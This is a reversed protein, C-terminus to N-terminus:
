KAMISYRTSQTVSDAGQIATVRLEWEGLSAPPNLHVPITGTGDPPPLDVLKRAVLRENMLLELRAKPAETKAKDPYVFFYATPKKGAIFTSKLLPVLRLNQHVFPDDASGDAPEVLRAMMVSSLGIGGRPNVEVPLLSASVRGTTRETVAAELTYRGAALIVPHSATRLQGSIDPLDDQYLDIVQGSTDLIRALVSVPQPEDRGNDAPVEFVVARRASSGLNAFQLMSVRFEFDHRPPRQELAELAPLDRLARREADGHRLAQTTGVDVRAWDEPNQPPKFDLMSFVKWHGHPSAVRLVLGLVDPPGQFYPVHIDHLGASLQVRGWKVYDSHVGDNNIVLKEDIYLRSGDDSELSFNYLGPTEIWFRGHYDIAFWEFRTTIGPFGQMCQRPTVNLENTYIEGVPELKDLKPLFPTGRDLFYIKGRLGGPIVVTTGFTAVGNGAASEQSWLPSATFMVVALGITARECGVKMRGGARAHAPGSGM